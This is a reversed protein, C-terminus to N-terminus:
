IEIVLPLESDPAIWIETPKVIKSSLTYVDQASFEQNWQGELIGFYDWIAGACPLLWAPVKNVSELWMKNRAIEPRSPDLLRDFKWRDTYKINGISSVEDDFFKPDYALPKLEQFLAYGACIFEGYIQRSLADTPPPGSFRCKYLTPKHYGNSVLVIAPDLLFFGHEQNRIVTFAHGAEHTKALQERDHFSLYEWLEAQGEPTDADGRGRIRRIASYENCRRIM